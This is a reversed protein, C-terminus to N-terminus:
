AARNVAPHHGENAYAVGRRLSHISLLGALHLYRNPIGSNRAVPEIVGAGVQGYPSTWREGRQHELRGWHILEGGFARM